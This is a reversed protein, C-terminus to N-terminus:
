TINEEEVPLNCEENVNPTKKKQELRLQPVNPLKMTSIAQFFNQNRHQVGPTQLFAEFLIEKIKKM